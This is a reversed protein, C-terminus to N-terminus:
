DGPKTSVPQKTVPDPTEIRPLSVSSTHIAAPEGDNM